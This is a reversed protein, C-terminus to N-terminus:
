RAPVGPLAREAEVRQVTRNMTLLYYVAMVSLWLCVLGIALLRPVWPNPPPAPQEAKALLEEAARREAEKKEKFKAFIVGCSACEAAGDPGEHACAPCKM